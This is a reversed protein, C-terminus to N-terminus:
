AQQQFRSAHSTEKSSPHCPWDRALARRMRYAFLKVQRRFLEVGATKRSAGYRATALKREPKM